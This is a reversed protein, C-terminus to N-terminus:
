AMDFVPESTETVEGDCRVLYRERLVRLRKAEDWEFM